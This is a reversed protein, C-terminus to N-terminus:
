MELGLDRITNLVSTEHPQLTSVIVNGLPQVGKDRLAQVFKEPPPKGLLKKERSAPRYVLAGNEAVIREFLNAQPFIRLVDDLERGTVLILKRGSARLRTLAAVTEGAVRGGVGLTEDFDCALVLYRV